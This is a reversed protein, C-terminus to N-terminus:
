TVRGRKPARQRAARWNRILVVAFSSAVLGGLIAAVSWTSLPLTSPQGIIPRPPFGRGLESINKETALSVTCNSTGFEQQDYWIRFIYEQGRALTYDCESNNVTYTTYRKAYPKGKFVRLVEIEVTWAEGGRPFSKVELTRGVRGHFVAEVDKVGGCWCARAERPQLAAPLVLAAVLFVLVLARM